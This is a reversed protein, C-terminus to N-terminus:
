FCNHYQCRHLQVCGALDAFEKADNATGWIQGVSVGFIEPISLIKRRKTSNEEESSDQEVVDSEEDDEENKAVNHIAKRKGKTSSAM